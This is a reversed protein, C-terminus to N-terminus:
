CDEYSNYGDFRTDVSRRCPYAGSDVVWLPCGKVDFLEYLFERKFLPSSRNTVFCQENFNELGLKGVFRVKVLEEGCIPCAVKRKPVKFKLKRYSCVGFWWVCHARVSDVRISAHSLQYQATDFVSKREAKVGFRDEAVKVIVGDHEFCHRTVAEFGDCRLFERSRGECVHNVCERCRGYGGKVFGLIHFHPSRRWRKGVRVWRFYHELIVGGIIGRAKCAKLIYKRNVVMDDGWRELPVSASFHEVLGYLKSAELLRSEIKHAERGGWSEYCVPCSPKHCSNLVVRFFGKGTCDEGYLVKGEHLDGRLCGSHTSYTGCKSNTVFGNGVLQYVGDTAWKSAGGDVSEDFEEEVDDFNRLDLEQVM